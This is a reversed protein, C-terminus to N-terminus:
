YGFALPLCGYFVFNLLLVFLQSIALADQMNNIIKPLVIPGKTKKDKQRKTRKDKKIM